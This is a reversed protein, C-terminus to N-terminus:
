GRAPLSILLLAVGQSQTRAGDLAIDFHWLGPLQIFLSTQQVGPLPPQFTWLCPDTKQRAELHPRRVVDDDTSGSNWLDGQKM